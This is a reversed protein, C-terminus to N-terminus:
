PEAMACGLLVVRGAVPLSEEIGIVSGESVLLRRWRGAALGAPALQGTRQALRAGRGLGGGATGSPQLCALGSNWAPQCTEM